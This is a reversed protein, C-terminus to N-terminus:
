KTARLEDLYDAWVQMMKKRQDLFKTRNYAAGLADPVRHALQHEIAYPDIGIHEHLITRAMARFGHVSMEEKTVGLRRLAGLMANESIYGSKSADSAFVYMKDSTYPHIEKLIAIAQKSLPVIFPESSKGVVFKWEASKFDIDKWKATRMDETRVFVLPMLKLACSTSPYGKYSDIMRLLPAVKAPEIIAALHNEKAPPLFGKINQAVNIEARETIIAYKFIQACNQLARHATELVGRAEMKKIVEVLKPTKIEKIPMKGIFPFINQELRRIIRDGHSPKWSKNNLAFWERAILEFTNQLGDLRSEKIAKKHESPDIGKSLMARSESHKLRAENLSVLPYSGLPLRNEKTKDSPRYYKHYWNKSGSLKVELYLGGGDFLKMSRQDKPCVAKEIQMKTLKM